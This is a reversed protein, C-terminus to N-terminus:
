IEALIKFSIPMLRYNLKPLISIKINFRGIQSVMGRYYTKKLKETLKKAKLIFTKCM